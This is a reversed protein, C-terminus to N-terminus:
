NAAEQDYEEWHLIWKTLYNDHKIYGRLHNLKQSRAGGISQEECEAIFYWRIVVNFLNEAQKSNLTWTIRCSQLNILCHEVM